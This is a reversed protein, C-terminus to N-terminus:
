LATCGNDPNLRPRVFRCYDHLYPLLFPPIEFEIPSGTKTEEKPIVVTSAAARLQMRRIMDLAALNKRRLPAFATLAIMLGDRYRVADALALKAGLSSQVEDMLEEGLRLLQLSTIASRTESKPPVARHLRTKMEKLWGLAADPMMVRAANYAAEVGT